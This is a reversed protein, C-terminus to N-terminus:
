PEKFDGKHEHTEIMPSSQRSMRFGRQIWLISYVIAAFAIPPFLMAQIIFGIRPVLRHAGTDLFASASWAWFVYGGPRSDFQDFVNITSREHFVLCAIVIIYTAAVIIVLRNWGKHSFISGTSM